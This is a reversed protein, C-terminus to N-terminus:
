ALENFKERWWLAIGPVGVTVPGIRAPTGDPLDYDVTHGMDEWERGIRTAVERIGYRQPALVLCEM